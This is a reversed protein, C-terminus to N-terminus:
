DALYIKTPNKAKFIKIGHQNCVEKHIFVETVVSDIMTNITVSERAGHLQITVMINDNDHELIEIYNLAAYNNEM